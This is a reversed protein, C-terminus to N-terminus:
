TTPTLYKWTSGFRFYVRDNATDLIIASAPGAGTPNGFCNPLVVFGATANTAIAQGGLIVDYNVGAGITLGAGSVSLFSYTDASNRIDFATSSALLKRSAGSFTLNGAVTLPGVSLTGSGLNVTGGTVTLGAAFTPTGTHNPNGAVTTPTISNATIGANFTAAAAFTTAANFTVAGTVTGGALPLYAIEQWNTGDDYRVRGTDRDLWKRGLTGASPRNAATSSQFHLGADADHANIQTRNADDNGKVLASSIPAQGFNPGTFTSVQHNGVTEAM